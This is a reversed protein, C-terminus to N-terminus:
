RSTDSNELKIYGRRNNLFFSNAIVLPSLPSSSHKFDFFSGGVTFTVSSFTILAFSFVHHADSTFGSFEILNASSQVSMDQMTVNYFLLTQLTTIPSIVESYGGFSILNFPSSSIVINTISHNKAADEVM